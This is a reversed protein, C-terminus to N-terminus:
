PKSWPQVPMSISALSVDIELWLVSCVAGPVEDMRSPIEEESMWYGLLGVSRAKVRPSARSSPRGSAKAM